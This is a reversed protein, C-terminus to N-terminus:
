EFCGLNLTIEILNGMPNKMSIYCLVRFNMHFWFLTLIALTIRYFFFLVPAMVRGSMLCYQLAVTILAAHYCVYANIPCFLFDLSLDVCRCGILRWCCPCSYVISFLCDRWCTTNLFSSLQKYILSTLFCEGMGCVFILYFHSLSKFIDEYCEYFLVYAFYESIFWLLTKKPRDGLAFSICAFFDWMSGLLVYTKACCLFGTVFCFSLRYVPLFYKCIM